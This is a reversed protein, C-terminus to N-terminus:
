KSYFEVILQTDISAEADDVEPLELVEGKLNATDVQLWAPSKFKKNESAKALTPHKKDKVEFIDGVKVMISPIDVRKGNLKIHGHTVIQRAQVRSKAFGARYIVNDLRTELLKLLASGTAEKNKDAKEYYLVFQKESIGYIRRAKQKARLHRGYETQKGFRNKGLQGPAYNRRTMACKQSECREGKLFLKEGERRCLKCKPGPM